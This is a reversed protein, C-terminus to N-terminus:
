LMRFSISHAHRLPHPDHSKKRGRGMEKEGRRKRGGRSGGEEGTEEEESEWGRADGVKRWEM